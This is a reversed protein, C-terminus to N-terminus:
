TFDANTIKIKENQRKTTLTSSGFSNDQTQRELITWLTQSYSVTLNEFQM